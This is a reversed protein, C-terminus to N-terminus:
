GFVEACKPRGRYWRRGNVAARQSLQQSAGLVHGFCTHYNTIVDLWHETRVGIRELIPALDEPIAGRKGERVIRGSADLLELYEELSIPLLGLDSARRATVSRERQGTKSKILHTIELWRRAVEEDSWTEVVDPRIRVVLHIHNSEEAHIGVEVAFLSALLEEFECIWNRRYEYDKGSVPDMGRFWARRVCRSWCHFVGVAGLQVTHSRPNSAM